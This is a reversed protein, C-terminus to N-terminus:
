FVVNLKKYLLQFLLRHPRNCLIWNSFWADLFEIYNVQGKLYWFYQDSVPPEQNPQLTIM